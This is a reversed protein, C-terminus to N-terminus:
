YIWKFMPQTSCMCLAAPKPVHSCASHHLRIHQACAPPRMLHMNPTHLHICQAHLAHPCIRQARTPPCILHTACVPLRTLCVRTSTNPTCPVPLQMLCAGQVSLCTTPVHLHIRMLHTAPCTHASCHSCSTSMASTASATLVAPTAPAAPHCTCCVSASPPPCLLHFLGSLGSLSQSFEPALRVFELRVTGQLRSDPV